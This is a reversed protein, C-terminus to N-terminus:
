RVVVLVCRAGKVCTGLRVRRRLRAAGALFLGPGHETAALHELQLGREVDFAVQAARLPRAQGRREMQCLRLHLDPELVPPVLPLPLEGSVQLCRVDWVGALPDDPHGNQVMVPSRGGGGGGRQAEAQAPM